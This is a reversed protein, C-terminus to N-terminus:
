LEFVCIDEDESSIVLTANVQDGNAVNMSVTGLMRHENPDVSFLGEQVMSSRGNPGEKRVFLRYTGTGPSESWVVGTLDYGLATKKKQISCKFDNMPIGESPFDAAFAVAACVFAGVVPLGAIIRFLCRLGSRRIFTYGIGRVSVDEFDGDRTM